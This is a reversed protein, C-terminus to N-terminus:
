FTHLVYKDHREPEYHFMPDPRTFLFLHPWKNKLRTLCKSVSTQSIRFEGALEEQTMGLTWNCYFLIQQQTLRHRGMHYQLNDADVGFLAYALLEFDEWTRRLTPEELFTINSEDV